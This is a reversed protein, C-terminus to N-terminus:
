WWRFLFLRSQEFSEAEEKLISWNRGVIGNFIRFYDEQFFLKLHDMVWIELSLLDPVLVFKSHYLFRQYPLFSFVKAEELSDTIQAPVTVSASFSNVVSNILPISVTLLAFVM